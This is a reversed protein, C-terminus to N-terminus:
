KVLALYNAYANQASSEIAVERAANCSGLALSCM